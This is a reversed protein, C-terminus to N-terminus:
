NRKINFQTPLAAETATSTTIYADIMDVTNVAQNVNKYVTFSGLGAPNGGLYIESPDWAQPIEFVTRYVSDTVAITPSLYSTHNGVGPDSISSLTFLPDNASPVSGAWMHARYSAADIVNQGAPIGMRAARAVTTPPAIAVDVGAVKTSTHGQEVVELTYSFDPTAQVITRTDIVTGALDTQNGVKLVGGSPEIVKWTFTPYSGPVIVYKVAFQQNAIPAHIQNPSVTLSTIAYSPITVLYNFTSMVKENLHSGDTTLDYVVILTFPITEGQRDAYEQQSIKYNLNLGKSDVGSAILDTGEVPQNFVNLMPSSEGDKHISWYVNDGDNQSIELSFDITLAGGTSYNGYFADIRPPSKRLNRSIKDFFYSVTVMSNDLIKRNFKVKFKDLMVYDVGERQTSGNISVYVLRDIGYEVTFVTHGNEVHINPTHNVQGWEQRYNVNNTRAILERNIIDRIKKAM